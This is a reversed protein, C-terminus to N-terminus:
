VHPVLGRTGSAPGNEVEINSFLDVEIDMQINLIASMRTSPDALAEPKALAEVYIHQRVKSHHHAIGVFSPADDDM